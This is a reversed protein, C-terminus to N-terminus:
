FGNVAVLRGGRKLLMKEQVRETVERARVVFPPHFPDVLNQLYESDVKKLIGPNKFQTRPKAFGASNKGFEAGVYQAQLSALLADSNGFQTVPIESIELAFVVIELFIERAESSKVEDYVEAQEIVQRFGLRM